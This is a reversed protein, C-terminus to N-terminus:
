RINWENDLHVPGESEASAEAGMKAKAAADRAPKSQIYEEQMILVTIVM